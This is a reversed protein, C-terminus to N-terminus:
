PFLNEHAARRGNCEQESAGEGARDDCRSRKRGKGLEGSRCLFWSGRVAGEETEIFIKLGKGRADSDGHDGNFDAAEGGHLIGVGALGIVDCPLLAEAGADNDIGGSVDEGVGVDDLVGCGDGHKYKAMTILLGSGNLIGLTEGGFDEAAVGEGIEGQELHFGGIEGRELKGVGILHMDALKSEGEATREAKFVGDGESDDTGRLALEIVISGHSIQLGIRGDIGSVGAAWQDVDCAFDDAHVGHDGRLGAATFTDSEGNGGVGNALDVILQAAVAM